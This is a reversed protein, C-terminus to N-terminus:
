RGGVLMLLSWWVILLTVTALGALLMNSNKILRRDLWSLEWSRVYGTQLSRLLKTRRRIPYVVACALLALFLLYGILGILVSM